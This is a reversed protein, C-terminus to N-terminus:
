PSRLYTVQMSILIYTTVPVIHLTMFNTSRRAHIFEIDTAACHFGYVLRRLM